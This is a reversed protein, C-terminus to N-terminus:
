GRQETREEKKKERQLQESLVQDETPDPDCVRLEKFHGHVFEFSVLYAYRRLSEYRNANHACHTNATGPVGCAKFLQSATTVCRYLAM